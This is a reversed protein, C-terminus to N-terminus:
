DVRYEERSQCDCVTRTEDDSIADYPTYVFTYGFFRPSLCYGVWPLMLTDCNIIGGWIPCVQTTVECIYIYGDVGMKM